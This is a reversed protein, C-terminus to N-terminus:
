APPPQWRPLWGTATRGCPCGEHQAEYQGGRQAEDGDGEGAGRHGGGLLLLVVLLVDLGEFAGQGAGLAAEALGLGAGIGQHDLLAVLLDSVVEDILAALLSVVLLTAGGVDLVDLHGALDALLVALLLDLVRLDFKRLLLSRPGVRSWSERSRWGCRDPHREANPSSRVGPGERPPFPLLVLAM